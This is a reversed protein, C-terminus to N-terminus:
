GGVQRRTSRQEKLEDHPAVFVIETANFRKGHESVVAVEFRVERGNSLKGNVFGEKTGPLVELRLKAERLNASRLCHKELQDQFKLCALRTAEEKENPAPSSSVHALLNINTGNLDELVLGFLWYGDFDSYRSTYTGLFGNLVGKLIRETM